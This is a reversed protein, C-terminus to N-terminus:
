IGAINQISLYYSTTSDFYLKVNSNVFGPNIDKAYGNVIRHTLVYPYNYQKRAADDTFVSGLVNLKLPQQFFNSVTNNIGFLQTQHIVNITSTNYQLFTSINFVQSNSQQPINPFLMNPYIDFTIKSKSHIYSSFNDIQLNVTSIYLDYNAPPNYGQILGNNGKYKISSNFFTDYYYFTNISSINVDIGNGIINLSGTTNLYITQRTDLISQTTSVLNSSLANTTSVLQSTSVYSLQGLGQLSSTLNQRNVYGLTGLGQLSSYLSASSTYGLSGLHVISSNLTKTSVYGYTALGELTSYLSASSIYGYTGLGTCTSNVNSTASYAGSILSTTTSILHGSSVYRIPDIFWSVTSTLNSTNIAGPGIGAYLNYVLTSLSVITSPLYGVYRSQSSINDYVDQWRLDGYGDTSLILNTSIPLNTNPDIGLLSRYITPDM